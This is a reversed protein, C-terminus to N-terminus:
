YVYHTQTNAETCYSIVFTLERGRKSLVETLTCWMSVGLVFLIFVSHAVCRRSISMHSQGRPVCKEAAM